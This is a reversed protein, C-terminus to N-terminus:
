NPSDDQTPTPQFFNDLLHKAVTRGIQDGHRMSHRWHLGAYVRADDIEKTIDNFRSYTRVRQVANPYQSDITIPIDGGFYAHLTDYTATSGCGHASPYEPHNPVVLLPTWTPDPETAPNGDTDARGIAHIPRWHMYHYKADFCAIIGDASATLGMAFLRATEVVNLGRDVALRTLTRNLQMYLNDAWFYAIDTQAPSRVASDVRGFDRTEIFDEAYEHSSLPLPGDPRVQDPSSLTWPTVFQLFVGVPTTPAVPEFVGPGPAPQVYPVEADLGDGARRALVVAAVDEGVQIGDAKPQGAPIGALYSEYRADLYSAQGPLRTRLVRYAATAVAATEDAGDPASVAAAYPAYGGEIAVAADYMAVVPLPAYALQAGPFRGPVIAQQAILAWDTVVNPALQSEGGLRAPADAVEDTRRGVAQVPHSTVDVTEDVATAASLSAPSLGSLGEAVAAEAIAAQVQARRAEFALAPDIATLSAPSLGSLGHTEAWEAIMALVVAQRRQQQTLPAPQEAPDDSTNSVVIGVTAVAVAAGLTVGVRM